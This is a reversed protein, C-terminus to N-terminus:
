SDYLSIRIRAIPLPFRGTKKEFTEWTLHKRGSRRRLWYQWIRRTWYRFSGIARSNHSVGYYQYHGRVKRALEQSQDKIKRHRNNRCWDSIKKLGKGLRDKSTKPKVSWRGKQTKGWYLTFGLFDYTARDEHRPPKGKYRKPPFMKVLRTKEPHIELGYKAFRKVIAKHVRRADEERSFLLLFDDAFRVLQNMGKMRPRVDEAYWTDLVHHLFVNSILPSIVGGQPTGNESYTVEGDELVGAKLWKDIARRMVGDRVRQDLFGRLIKHDIADFYGKVDVSLVWYGHRKWDGGWAAKLAMHQSRGPRFGYSFDYFDQEYIQGLVMAVARQLVKDEFSTIGIPRTKNGDGKPIHVRKVHPARYRGSKFKELLNRLNKDLEEEYMAATVGDVGVAGDKRTLIYAEYMWQLDIYHNLSTLVRGPNNKALQAIRIRQTLIHNPGQRVAM